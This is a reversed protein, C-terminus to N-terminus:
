TNICKLRMSTGIAHVGAQSCIHPDVYDDDIEDNSLFQTPIGIYSLGGGLYEAHLINSLGISLWLIAKSLGNSTAYINYVDCLESM